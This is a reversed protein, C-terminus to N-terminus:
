FRIGFTFPLFQGNAKQATSGVTTSAFPTV